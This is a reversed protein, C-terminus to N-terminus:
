KRTPSPSASAYTTVRAKGHRVILGQALLQGLDRGATIRSVRFKAVCWAATLHGGNQLENLIALQRYNLASNDERSSGSDKATALPMRSGLEYEVVQHEYVQVRVGTEIRYSQGDVTLWTGRSGLARRIRNIVAYLMADHRAPHYAFGWFSEVLESKSVASKSIAILISKMIQSFRERSRLVNGRDFVFSEGPILDLCIVRAGLGFRLHENLFGYLGSAIIRLLGSYGAGGRESALNKLDGLPDDGDVTPEVTHGCRWLINRGVGLGTRATLEKVEAQLEMLEQAANLGDSSRSQVSEELIKLRLGQINLREVLDFRRDILTQARNLHDIASGFDGSLFRNYALRHHLRATHRAHQAALVVPAAQQLLKESADWDGRIVFQRSLEVQAAALSFNDQPDFNKILSKLNAMTHAQPQNIDSIEGLGDLGHRSRYYALSSKINFALAENGLKLAMTSARNLSEVGRSIEGTLVLAHGRLDAALAQGFGFNAVLACKWARDTHLLAKLYRSEFFRLFALGQHAYFGAQQRLISLKAVDQTTPTGILLRYRAFNDRLWKSGEDYRSLRVLGIGIYFAIAFDSTEIQTSKAKYLTIADEVRGVFALAGVVFVLDHDSVSSVAGDVKSAIIDRFQGRYFLSEISPDPKAM